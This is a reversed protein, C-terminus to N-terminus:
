CSIVLNLAKYFAHPMGYTQSTIKNYELHLKTNIYSIPIKSLNQKETKRNKNQKTKNQKRKTLNEFITAEPLSYIFYDYYIHTVIVRM